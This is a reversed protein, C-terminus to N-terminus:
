CWTKTDCSNRKKLWKGIYTKNELIQNRSIDLIDQIINQEM